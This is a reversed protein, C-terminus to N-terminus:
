LNGKKHLSGLLVIAVAFQVINKFVFEGQLTLGYPFAYFYASPEIFLSIFTALLQIILLIIGIRLLRKFLLCFGIAIEWIGLCICFHPIGIWYTTKSVLLEVPSIGFLKLLGYWLYVIATSYRLLLTGIRQAVMSIKTEFTLYKKWSKPM